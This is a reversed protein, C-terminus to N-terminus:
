MKPILVIHTKNLYAPVKRDSFVILVEDKISDGVILWFRQFFGEHLGDPGLAKYPKMFWLASKIEEPSIREELSSKM